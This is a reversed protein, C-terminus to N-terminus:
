DHLHLQGFRLLQREPRLQCRHCYCAVTGNAGQTVANVTLTENVDPGLTDNARVDIANVGSDEAVTASDTNAVPNDNVPTVTVNVTAIASGGNGDSITYTFSDSGFYNANPAYSVGTATVAVTGNAGQTVATVTLTEDVDPGLTDNLASMLRM